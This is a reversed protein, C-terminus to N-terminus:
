LRAHAQHLYVQYMCRRELNDAVAVALKEYILGVTQALLILLCGWINANIINTHCYHEILMSCYM